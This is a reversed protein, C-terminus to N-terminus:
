PREGAVTARAASPPPPLGDAVPRAPDEQHLAFNLAESFSHLVIEVDCQVEREPAIAADIGEPPRVAAFVAHPLHARLVKCAERWQALGGEDPYTLLVVSILGAKEAGHDPM